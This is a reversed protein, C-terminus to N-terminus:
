AGAKFNTAAELLESYIKIKAVASQRTENTGIRFKDLLYDLNNLSKVIIENAENETRIEM